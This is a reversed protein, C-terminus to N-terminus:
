FDDEDRVERLVPHMAGEVADRPEPAQVRDMVRGFGHVPQGPRPQVQDVDDHRAAEREHREIHEAECRRGDVRVEDEDREERHEDMGVHPEIQARELPQHGRRAEVVPVVGRARDVLIEGDM